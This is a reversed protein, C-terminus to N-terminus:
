RRVAPAKFRKQCAQITLKKIQNIPLICLQEACMPPRYGYVMIWNGFRATAPKFTTM